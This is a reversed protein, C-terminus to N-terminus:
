ESEEGEWLPTRAKGAADIDFQRQPIIHQAGTEVDVWGLGQGNACGFTVKGFVHAWGEFTTGREHLILALKHQRCVLNFDVWTRRCTMGYTRETAVDGWFRRGVVVIAQRTCRTWKRTSAECQM